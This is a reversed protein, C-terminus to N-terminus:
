RGFRAMLARRVEDVEEVRLMFAGAVFALMGAVIGASVQILRGSVREV